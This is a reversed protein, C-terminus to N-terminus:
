FWCGSSKAGTSKPRTDSCIEESTRFLRYSLIQSNYTVGMKKKYHNLANKWRSGQQRRVKRSKKASQSDKNTEHRLLTPKGKRKLLPRNHVYYVFYYQNNSTTIFNREEHEVWYRVWKNHVGTLYRTLYSFLFEMDIRARTDNETEMSWFFNHCIFRISVVFRFFCLTYM